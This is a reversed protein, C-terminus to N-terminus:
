QASYHAVVKDVMQQYLVTKDFQYTEDRYMELIEDETFGYVAMCDELTTLYEMLEMENGEIGRDYVDLYLWRYCNGMDEVMDEAESRIKTNRDKETYYESIATKAYKEMRSASGKIAKVQVQADYVDLYKQYEYDYLDNDSLYDRVGSWDEDAVMQEISRIHNEKTQLERHAIIPGSVVGLGIVFIIVLVLILVTRGVSGSFDSGFRRTDM